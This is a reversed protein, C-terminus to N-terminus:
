SVIRSTQADINPYFRKFYNCAINVVLVGSVLNKDIKIKFYSM